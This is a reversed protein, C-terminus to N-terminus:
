KKNAWYRISEAKIQRIFQEPTATGFVLANDAPYFVNAWWEPLGGMVGDYNQFYGTSSDIVPKADQLPEPYIADGRANISSTITVMADAAKKSSFFRLFDKAAEPNKADRPVASSMIQVEIETGAGKGGPVAPFSFFGYKFDDDIQPITELPIWSGCFVM